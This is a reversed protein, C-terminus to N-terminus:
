YRHLRKFYIIVNNKEKGKEDRLLPGSPLGYNGQSRSAQPRQVMATILLAVPEPSCLHSTSCKETIWLSPHGKIEGELTAM